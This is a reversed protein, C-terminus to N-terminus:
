PTISYTFSDETNSSNKIKVVLDFPANLDEDEFVAIGVVKIEVTEGAHILIDDSDHTEFDGGNKSVPSWRFVLGFSGDKNNLDYGKVQYAEGNRKVAFEVIYDSTNLTDRDLNKIVYDLCVLTRGKNAKFFGSEAPACAEEVNSTTGDSTSTAPGAAYSSIAANNVTVELIEKSVTDGLQYSAEREESSSEKKDGGCACLALCMVLALLLAIWKKM